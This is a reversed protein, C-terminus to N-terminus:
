FRSPNFTIEIIVDKNLIYAEDIGKLITKLKDDFTYKVIIQFNYINNIKFISAPTPGYIITKKDLNNDLIKKVKNAEKSALDYDISKINLVTIYTYPPYKLKHRIDMEYNYFAEYNNDKVFKLVENEPNFTQIIVEGPKKDRGARGSTQYLLNFTKENARFDPINLSTDANIIGVLTVNKFDLGKSIMQTGLLIDYKEDAFDDIIRQYSGKKSTTDQDMRIINANPYLKKLEEELKQTGLGLYNLANEHCNPCLDDKKIYYGCYHCRLNNSTKHYTLTIDCNPCKYTYGCASCTIFTSFGRRNLLLIVQEKNHLKESIKDKLIESFIFNRKKIEEQMDVLITEPLMMNNARKKLTLLKYVGKSARAKAELSPTASALVLPINNYKCRFKAVEIADYRPNTEQKYTDSHEEDIIIIGLNKLPVFISSRTGVVIKVEDNYIKQYEDYKEGNSLGSHFVAVNAGFRDYFRKVTQTTLCIEPVLVIASKGNKIVESILKMYVETKGSGTVGELLYTNYENIKDKVTKYAIKQEDNLEHGKILNNEINIRHKKINELEIIGEKLLINVINSPLGKKLVKGTELMEIIEIKRKSRPNNIIYKNIKNKDQTLKVYTDFIDYNTKQTKIKLASPLMAQYASILTCLTENKIFSAIEMQEENLYIDPNEILYIEKTEYEPKNNTLNVILGNLIQKGFPVRVKQGKKIINEYKQPVKYTFYKDLSKVPYEIIVEAFM